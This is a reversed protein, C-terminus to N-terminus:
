LEADGLLLDQLGYLNRQMLRANDGRLFAELGPPLDGAGFPDLGCDLHKPITRTLTLGRGGVSEHVYLLFPLLGSLTLPLILRGAPV